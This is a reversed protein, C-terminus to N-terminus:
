GRDGVPDKVPADKAATASQAVGKEIPAASGGDVAAVSGAKVYANSGGNLYANQGAKVHTSGGASMFANGSAKISIDKQSSVFGEQDSKISFNKSSHLYFNGGTKIVVDDKFNIQLKQNEIDINIFDGKYTRVLIKEKGAREDLLITTQNGDITYVSGTDGSPPSSLQRKKGTIEVRADADDDSIVITRGNHSKFIVWKNEPHDGVQNEPLIKCNQIDLGGFYFPRNVNGGEFFIWVWSGIRPIYTTGCYSSNDNDTNRGSIPNNAPLANIGKTEPVKPMISPIWVVIRGFFESDKNDIVKARYMGFYCNNM